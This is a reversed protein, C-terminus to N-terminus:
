SSSLSVKKKLGFKSFLLQKFEFNYFFNSRRWSNGRLWLKIRLFISKLFPYFATIRNKLFYNKLLTLVLVQFNFNFFRKKKFNAAM